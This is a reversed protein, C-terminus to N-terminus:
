IYSEETEHAFKYPANQGANSIWIDIQGWKKASEDWLNQLAEKKQVDCPVYIYQNEYGTLQKIATETLSDGRGSICVNCEAKLFEVAMALGIGRTSGTIVINKM